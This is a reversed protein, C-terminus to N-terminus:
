PATYGQINVVVEIGSGSSLSLTLATNATTRLPNPFEIMYMPEVANIALEIAFLFAGSTGDRLTVRTSAFGGTVGQIQMATVYRRLGAGAAAAITHPGNTTFGASAGTTYSWEQEPIQWPRTILVGQLTAILDAVDGTAVSTYNATIARAANIVPATTGRAGDHAVPGVAQVQGIPTSAATAGALLVGIGQGAVSQGRGATIEATLEAYDQVSVFQFEANTNSAPATAGNQSRLQIKYVANPDPIQQHRRYSNARGTAVDLATSHFWSEDAFPELEYVGGPSATTTVTVAASTLRALGGNQVQYKAQTVTTADFLWAIAHKGDPVGTSPDVSLAEIFFNNDAIRQSLRMNVSVRFPVTFTEKTRILTESNITTGAAITLLGGSVSVSGGAGVSSDWKNTDLASPPDSFSDRFKKQVSKVKQMDDAPDYGRQTVPMPNTASVDGDSVGDAGLVMKIRQHLIGGIDDAAVQAGTGPTYGVNDAM